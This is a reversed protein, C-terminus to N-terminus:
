LNRTTLFTKKGLNSVPVPKQFVDLICECNSKKVLANGAVGLIAKGQAPTCKGLLKLFDHNKRLHQAM